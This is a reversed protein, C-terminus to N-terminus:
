DDEDDSQRMTETIQSYGSITHILRTRYEDFDKIGFAQLQYLIQLTVKKKDERVFEINMKKHNNVLCQIAHTFSDIDMYSIAKSYLELKEEDNKYKMFIDSLAKGMLKYDQKTFDKDFYGDKFSGTEFFYAMDDYMENNQKVEKGKNMDKLVEDNNKKNQSSKPKPWDITKFFILERKETIQAEKVAQFWSKQDAMIWQPIIEKRRNKLEEIAYIFLEENLYDLGKIYNLRVNEKGQVEGLVAQLSLANSYAIAFNKSIKIKEITGSKLTEGNLVTSAVSNPNNDVIPKDINKPQEKPKLIEKTTPLSSVDDDDEEENDYDDEYFDDMEQYLIKTNFIEMIKSSLINLDKETKNKDIREIYKIVTNCWDQKEKDNLSTLETTIFMEHTTKLIGLSIYDPLHVFMKIFHGQANRKRWNKSMISGIAKQLLLSNKIEDLTLNNGTSIFETARKLADDIAKEMENEKSDNSM